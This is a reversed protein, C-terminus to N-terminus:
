LNLSRHTLCSLVTCLLSPQTPPRNEAARERRGSLEDQGAARAEQSAGGAPPSTCQLSHEKLICAGAM